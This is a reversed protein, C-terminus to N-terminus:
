VTVSFPVTAAEISVAEGTENYTKAQTPEMQPMNETHGSQELSVKGDESIEVHVTDSNEM